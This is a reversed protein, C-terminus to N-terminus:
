KTLTGFGVLLLTALLRLFESLSTMLKMADPMLFDKSGNSYHRSAASIVLTRYITVIDGCLPATLERPM